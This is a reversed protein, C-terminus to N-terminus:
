EIAISSPGDTSLITPVKAGVQILAGTLLNIRFVTVTGDAGNAVYAYQGSPDVQVQTPTGSPIGTMTSVFPSGIVETLTGDVNVTFASVTGDGSNSVYLFSGTPDITVGEPLAGVAYSPGATIVGDPGYTFETVTGTQSDTVYMIGGTPYIAIGYPGGFGISAAFQAPAFPSGADALLLGGGKISYGAISGDDFNAAYLLSNVPDVAVTYPINGSPYTSAALVGFAPTLVGADLAYAELTGNPNQDSGVYLWPGAPDIALGFPRNTGNGTSAVVDPTLAGTAAYTYTSVSASGSNAVYLYEGGPDLVLSYPAVQVSAYPSGPAATLAGSLANITFAAISGGGGNDYPNTAFLLTGTNRCVVTVTTVNGTTVTGSGNTVRCLQAPNTPQAGVTVAYTMNSPIKTAFTFNGNATVTLNDGGNDQLTLATGNLGSVTGGISYLNTTCTIMVNTVDASVVPGTGNSVTCTQSPNGPQALVTVAYTSGSPLTAFTYTGSGAVGVTHAGNTQVTLGAGTLGTVTGSIAYTNTACTIAVNTVNANTVTGTDNAVTCTQAPNSPQTMVTVAYNTGSALTAFTYSGSTTVPVNNSGNTQVVLGSGALGTVNGSINYVNTTCSVVVSAVNVTGVTGVGNMVTCVQSPSVPQSQITVNYGAGSAATNTFTFGGNGTIALNNGANNALVLGSGSLGMVTGGVTYSAQTGGSSSATGNGGISGNGGAGTSITDGASDLADGCASLVATACLALLLARVTTLSLPRPPNWSM